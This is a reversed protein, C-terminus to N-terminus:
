ALFFFCHPRHLERIQIGSKQRKKKAPFLTYMAWSMARLAYMVHSSEAKSDHSISANCSCLNELNYGESVDAHSPFNWQFYTRWLLWRKSLKFTLSTGFKAQFDKIYHLLLGCQIVEPAWKHSTTREKANIPTCSTLFSPARKHGGGAANLAPWRAEDIDNRDFQGWVDDLDLAKVPRNPLIYPVFQVKQRSIHFLNHAKTMQRGITTTHYSVKPGRYSM